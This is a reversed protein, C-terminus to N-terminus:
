VDGYESNKWSDIDLVNEVLQRGVTFGRQVRTTHKAVVNRITINTSGAVIKNDSNKLSLPRTDCAWRVCEIEDGECDGKPPFCSVSQNFDIPMALGARLHEGVKALTTAGTM